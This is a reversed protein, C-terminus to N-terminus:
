LSCSPAPVPAAFCTEASRQFRQFQHLQFQHNCSGFAFREPVNPFPKAREAIIESRTTTAQAELGRHRCLRAPALGLGEARDQSYPRVRYRHPRHEAAELSSCARGPIRVSGDREPKKGGWAHGLKSRFCLETRARPGTGRLVHQSLRSAPWVLSGHIPRSM